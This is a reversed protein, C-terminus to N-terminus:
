RAPPRSSKWAGQAGPRGPAATKRAPIGADFAARLAAFAPGLAVAYSKGAGGATLIAVARAGGEDAMVVPAGSFGAPARCGLRLIRADRAELPCRRLSLRGDAGHGPLILTAGPAPPAGPAALALPAVAARDIPADLEALALDAAVSEYSPHAGGHVYGPLLASRRIARAAGAGGPGGGARFRLRADPLRAGRRDFLCHAATVILAPAVLAATCRGGGEAELRGVGTLAAAGIAPWGRPPAEPGAGLASGAALAAGLAAARAVARAATLAPACSRRAAGAAPARARMRGASPAPRPARM